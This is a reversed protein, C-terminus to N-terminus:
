TVIGSRRRSRGSIMTMLLLSIAGPVPIFGLSGGFVVTDGASLSFAYQIALYGSDGNWDILGSLADETAQSGLGSFSLEFPAALMSGMEIDNLTGTWIPSDVLSRLSADIGTLALTLSGGWDYSNPNQQTVPLYFGIVFEIESTSTNSIQVNGGLRPTDSDGVMNTVTTFSENTVQSGYYHNGNGVNIGEIAESASFGTDTSINLYSIPDANTVGGLVLSTLLVVSQMLHRNM